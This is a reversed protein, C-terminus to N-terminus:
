VRFGLVKLVRFGLGEFGKVRFGLVRFGFDENSFKQQDKKKAPSGADKIEKQDEHLTNSGDGVTDVAFIKPIGHEAVKVGPATCSLRVPCQLRM